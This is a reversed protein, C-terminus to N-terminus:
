GTCAAQPYYYLRYSRLELDSLGPPSETRDSRHLGHCHLRRGRARVTYRSLIWTRVISYLVVVTDPRKCGPGLTSGRQRGGFMM